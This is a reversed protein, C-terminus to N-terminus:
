RPRSLCGYLFGMSYTLAELGSDDSSLNQHHIHSHCRQYANTEELSRLVATWQNDGTAQGTEPSGEVERTMEKPNQDDRTRESRREVVRTIETRRHVVWILNDDRSMEPRYEDERTM